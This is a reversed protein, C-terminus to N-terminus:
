MISCQNGNRKPQMGFENLFIARISAVPADADNVLTGDALAAYVPYGIGDGLGSSSWVGYGNKIMHEDPEGNYLQLRALRRSPVMYKIADLQERLKKEEPTALFNEFETRSVIVVRGADVSVSLKTEVQDQGTERLPIVSASSHWACLSRVRVGINVDSIHERRFHWLGPLANPFAIGLETEALVGSEVYTKALPDDPSLNLKELRAELSPPPHYPDMVYLGKGSVNFTGTDPEKGPALRGGFALILKALGMDSGRNRSQAIAAEFPTIENMKGQFDVAVKANPDVGCKGILFKVVETAESGVAELLPTCGTRKSITNFLRNDSVIGKDLMMQLLGINEFRCALHIATEDEVNPELLDLKYHDVWQKVLQIQEESKYLACFTKVIPAVSNLGNSTNFDMNPPLLEAIRKVAEIERILLAQGLATEVSLEVMEEPTVVKYGHGRQHNRNSTPLHASLGAGAREKNYCVACLDYSPETCTKCQYRPGYIFGYPRGCVDCSIGRHCHPGASVHPGYQAVSPIFPAILSWAGAASNTATTPSELSTKAAVANGPSYIATPPNSPEGTRSSKNKRRFSFM